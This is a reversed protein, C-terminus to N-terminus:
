IKGEPLIIGHDQLLFSSAFLLLFSGSSLLERVEVRESPGDETSERGVTFDTAPRRPKRGEECTFLHKQLARQCSPCRINSLIREM